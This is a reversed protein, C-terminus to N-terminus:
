GERGREIDLEKMKLQIGRRFLGLERAARTV